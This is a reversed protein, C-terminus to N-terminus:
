LEDGLFSNIEEAIYDIEMKTLAPFMPLTVFQKSIKETFPLDGKNHKYNNRYFSTLHIPSFYIKASIGKKSLHQILKDRIDENVRISYLQYVHHYYHPPISLNVGKIKSLKNNMYAANERRLNIISDVKKIQSLGLAANMTPMRFNYGLSVYDMNESSTFFDNTELRGHSRILKLKNYIEKSDTVVAGGEGTTIIKNQCFSLISADGFTGVKRGKVTAGFAEAADEFLLLNHDDAIEKLENILCPCGGYHIPIIARTKSTIQEKVNEPDLGYTRDEIEAFVPKANVFQPANATAIFTFSPVIVEDGKGIGYALLLAHLASTASNFTLAYKTGIYESIEEEFKLIDTGNAWSSGRKIVNTVNNIDEDDWYIEFLPINQSM